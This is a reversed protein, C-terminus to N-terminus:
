PWEVIVANWMADSKSAIVGVAFARWDLIRDQTWIEGVCCQGPYTDDCSQDHHGKPMRAVCVGEWEALLSVLLSNKHISYNHGDKATAV